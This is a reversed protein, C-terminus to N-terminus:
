YKYGTLRHAFNESRSCIRQRYTKALGNVKTM